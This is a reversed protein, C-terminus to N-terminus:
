EIVSRRKTAAIDVLGAVIVRAPDDSTMEASLREIHQIVDRFEASDLDGDSVMQLAELIRDKVYLNNSSPLGFAEALLLDASQGSLERLPPVTRHDLSVVSAHPPLESVVLPSHTAIVFHCGHFNSFTRLLLDVYRVQWEPHLSLEPEDILVLSGNTIASALSLLATVISMEGSSAMKLNSVRGGKLIEVASLQLFGARRLPQLKAFSPDLKGNLRFDADFRVKNSDMRAIVEQLLANMYGPPFDGVRCVEAAREYIRRDLIVGPDLIDQGRMVADIVNRSIRPRYVVSLVPTLDLFDFVNSINVRRLTEDDASEFLSNLSRFLLNEIAARGTRDRLGLYRYSGEVDVRGVSFPQTRPVPFKDFPSITLAVVREPRPLAEVETPVDNITASVGSWGQEVVCYQEGMRYAMRRLPLKKRIKYVGASWEEMLVFSRVVAGLMHSKGTGNRGIVATVHGSTSSSTGATSVFSTGRSIPAHNYDEFKEDDLGTDVELLQFDM